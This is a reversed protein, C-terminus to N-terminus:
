SGDDDLYVVEEYDKNLFYDMDFHTFVRSSKEAEFIKLEKELLKLRKANKTKRIKEELCIISFALDDWTSNKADEICMDQFTKEKKNSM